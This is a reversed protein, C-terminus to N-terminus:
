IMVIAKTDCIACIYEVDEQTNLTFIGLRRYVISSNQQQDVEEALIFTIHSRAEGSADWSSDKKLPICIVKKGEQFQTDSSDPYIWVPLQRGEIDIARNGNSLNRCVGVLVTGRLELYGKLVNDTTGSSGTAVHFDVISVLFEASASLGSPTVPGDVSGWSWSPARYCASRREQPEFVRWDLSELLRSKWWGAVYEDGTIDQFLEAIGAIAIMKDSPNTLDCCSYRQVLDNWLNFGELSMPERSQPDVGDMTPMYDFLADMNKDSSHAPIGCPFCECKHESLCEWLIQDEGFYLVRPALFREQFVWGRKHLPGNSIQRDWYRKEFIYHFSPRDSSLSSWVMRPRIKDPERSRFMSEEPSKSVSAAINCASNAYVHRMNPAEAEWDDISDQIICLADIWVYRIRFTRAVTIFDRFLQPLDCIPAGQEFQAINSSLLTFNADSGWRYSLTMYSLRTSLSSQEQMIRLFWNTDGDHGIDILRTPLRASDFTSLKHCLKHESHCHLFWEKATALTTASSTDSEMNCAEEGAYKQVRYQLPQWYKSSTDSWALRHQESMNFITSCIVCDEQSANRFAVLTQGAPTTYSLKPDPGFNYGPEPCLVAQCVSCTNGRLITAKSAM